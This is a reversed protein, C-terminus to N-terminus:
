LLDFLSQKKIKNIIYHPKGITKRSLFGLSELKNIRSRTTRKFTDFKRVDINEIKNNKFYIYNGVLNANIENTKSFMDYQYIAQLIEKYEDVLTDFNNGFIERLEARFNENKFVSNIQYLQYEVTRSPL